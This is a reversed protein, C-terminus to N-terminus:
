VFRLGGRFAVHLILDDVFQDGGMGILKRMSDVKMTREVYICLEIMGNCRLGEPYFLADRDDLYTLLSLNTESDIILIAASKGDSDENEYLPFYEDLCVSMLSWNSERVACLYTESTYIKATGMLRTVNEPFVVRDRLVELFHTVDM